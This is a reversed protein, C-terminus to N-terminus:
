AVLRVRSNPRRRSEALRQMTLAETAHAAEKGARADMAILIAEGRAGSRALAIASSRAVLHARDVVGRRLADVADSSGIEGLASAAAARVGVDGDGHLAAALEAVADPSGLGGLAAAAARRVDSWGNQTLAACLEPIASPGNFRGLVNAAILSARPEALRLADRLAEGTDPGLTVLAAAITGTPLRRRGDASALLAPAASAHGLAALASTAALRVDRSRDTLLPILLVLDGELRTHGLLTAARARGIAGPRGVRRRARRTTGICELVEAIRAGSAGRTKALMERSVAELARTERRGGPVLLAAVAEDEDAVIQVLARRAADLYERRRWRLVSRAVKHILIVVAMGVILGLLGVLVFVVVGAGPAIM